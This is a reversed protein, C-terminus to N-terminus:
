LVWGVLALTKMNSGSPKRFLSPLGSLLAHTWNSVGGVIYPYTGELILCVDFMSSQHEHIDM